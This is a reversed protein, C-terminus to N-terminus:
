PGVHGACPPKRCLSGYCTHCLLRLNAPDSSDGDIHDIEAGPSSCRVCVGGDRKIVQERAARSLYRAASDYGGALAHAM